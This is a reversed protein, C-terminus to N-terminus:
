YATPTSPHTTSLFHFQLSIHALIKKKGKKKKQMVSFESALVLSGDWSLATALICPKNRLSPLFGADWFTGPIM